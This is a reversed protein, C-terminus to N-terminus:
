SWPTYDEDDFRDILQRAEAYKESLVAERLALYRQKTPTKKKRPRPPSFARAIRLISEMGTIEEKALAVM